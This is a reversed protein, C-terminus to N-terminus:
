NEKPDAKLFATLLGATQALYACSAAFAAGPVGYPEVVFWGISILVTLGIGSTIANWKHLGIASLHHALISSTAGALMGPILIRIPLAIGDIGFIWAYVSEPILGAVIAIPLTLLLTRHLYRRTITHRELRSSAAAVQTNVMPALARAVTWVAEVGYYVVSYVGAGASGIFHDLLSLNARNTLLQLISGTSGQAGYKLLLPGPPTDVEHGSTPGDKWSGKLAFLSYFFTVMLAGTLAWMFGRPTTIEFLIYTLFVTLLLTSTQAIQLYNNARIKGSAILLQSHFVVLSQLLGLGASAYLWESPIIGLSVGLVSAIIASCGCWLYAVKRIDGARHSRRVYVVAGAAVFGAMGTVLLLGFQLLAVMGLGEEGLFHSNLLVTLLTVGLLILRSGISHWIDSIFKM